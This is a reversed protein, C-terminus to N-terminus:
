GCNVFFVFAVAAATLSGTDATTAWGVAVDDDGDESPLPGRLAPALLDASRLRPFLFDGRDPPSSLQLQFSVNFKLFLTHLTSPSKSLEIFLRSNISPLQLSINTITSLIRVGM